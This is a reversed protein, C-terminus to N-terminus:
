SLRNSLTFGFSLIPGVKNEAQELSNYIPSVINSIYIHNGTNDFRHAGLHLLAHEAPAVALMDRYAVGM